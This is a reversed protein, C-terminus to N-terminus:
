EMSYPLPLGEGREWWVFALPNPGSACRYSKEASLVSLDPFSVSRFFSIRVSDQFENKELCHKKSAASPCESERFYIPLLSQM